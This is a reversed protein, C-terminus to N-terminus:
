LPSEELAVRDGYFAILGALNRAFALPAPYSWAIDREEVAGNEDMLSFYAADGKLPCHSTTQTENLQCLIDAPPLYLVPDYIDKGVELVRLANKTEALLRGARLVRVRSAVPKLRMFHRPERPNHIADRVMTITEHDM